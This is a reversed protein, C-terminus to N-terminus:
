RRSRLRRRGAPTSLLFEAVAILEPPLGLERARAVRESPTLSTFGNKPRLSRVKARVALVKKRHRDARGPKKDATMEFSKPMGSRSDGGANM